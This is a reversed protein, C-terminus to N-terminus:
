FYVEVKSYHPFCSGYGGQKETNEFFCLFPTFSHNELFSVFWSWKDLPNEIELALETEIEFNVLFWCDVPKAENPIYQIIREPKNKAM